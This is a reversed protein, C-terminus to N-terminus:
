EYSVIAHAQHGIKVDIPHNKGSQVSLSIKTVIFVCRYKGILMASHYYRVFGDRVRLDRCRFERIDNRGNNECSAWTTLCRM